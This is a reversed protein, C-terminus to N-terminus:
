PSIHLPTVAAAWDRGDLAEFLSEREATKASADPTAEWFTSFLIRPFDVEERVVLLKLLDM